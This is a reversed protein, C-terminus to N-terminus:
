KSRSVIIKNIREKLAEVRATQDVKPRDLVSVVQIREEFSEIFKNTDDTNVITAAYNWAKDIWYMYQSANTIKAEQVMDQVIESFREIIYIMQIKVRRKALGTTDELAKKLWTVLASKFGDCLEQPTCESLTTLINSDIAVLNDMAGNIISAIDQNM